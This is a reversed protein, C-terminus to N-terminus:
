PKPDILAQSAAVDRGGMMGWEYPYGKKIYKRISLLIAPFDPCDHTTLSMRPCLLFRYMAVPVSMIVIGVCLYQYQCSVVRCVSISVSM